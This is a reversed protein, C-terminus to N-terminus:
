NFESIEFLPVIGSLLFLIGTFRFVNITERSPEELDRKLQYDFNM